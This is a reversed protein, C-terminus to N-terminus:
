RVINRDRRMSHFVIVHGIFIFISSKPGKEAGIHGNIGRFSLFQFSKHLNLIMMFLDSRCFNFRNLNLHYELLLIFNDINNQLRFQVDLAPQSFRNEIMALLVRSFHEERSRSKKFFLSRSRRISYVIYIQLFYFDRPFV